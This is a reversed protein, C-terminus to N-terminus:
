LPFRRGLHCRIGCGIRSLFTYPGPGSGAAGESGRTRIEHRRTASGEHHPWRARVVAPVQCRPEPRSCLGLLCRCGYRRDRCMATWGALGHRAHARAQLGSAPTAARASLRGGQADPGARCEGCGMECGNRQCCRWGSGPRCCEAPSPMAPSVARAPGVLLEPRYWRPTPLGCRIFYSTGDKNLELHPYPFTAFYLRCRCDAPCLGMANCALCRNARLAQRACEQLYKTCNMLRDGTQGCAFCPNWGSVGAASPLDFTRRPAVTHYDPGMPRLPGPPPPQVNM